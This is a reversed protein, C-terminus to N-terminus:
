QKDYVEHRPQDQEGKPLYDRTATKGDESLTMRSTYGPSGDPATVEVVLAMGDWHATMSGGRSDQSPKGDTRFTETEEFAQGGVAAKATYKFEPDKYQIQAVLETIPAGGLDSKEVNLKWTGTFDPKSSASLAVVGLVASSILFLKRLAKM